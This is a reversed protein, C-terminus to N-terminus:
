VRKILYKLRYLATDITGKPFNLTKALDHHSPSVALGNIKSHIRRLQANVLRLRGEQEQKKIPDIEKRIKKELLLRHLFLKNKRQIYLRIRKKKGALEAKLATVAQELWLQECNTLAAIMEIHEPTLEDARKAAYFLFRKCAAKNNIKGKDNIELIKKIRPDVEADPHKIDAALPDNAPYFFANLYSLDNIHLKRKLFTKVRRGILFSLYHEIPVGMNRFGQLAKILTPYFDLIFDHCDDMDFYKYKRVYNYIHILYRNVLEPSPRYNTGCGSAPHPTNQRAMAHQM